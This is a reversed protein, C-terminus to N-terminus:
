YGKMPSDNLSEVVAKGLPTFEYTKDATSEFPEPKGGVTAILKRKELVGYPYDNWVVKKGQSLNYLAVRWESPLHKREDLVKYDLTIKDTTNKILVEDGEGDELYTEKYKISGVGYLHKDNNVAESIIELAESGSLRHGESVIEGDIMLVYWDDVRVMDVNM